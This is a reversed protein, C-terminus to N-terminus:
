TLKIKEKVQRLAFWAHMALTTPLGYHRRMVIFREHLSAHHNKNTMGGDLYNAVVAPVRRMALHQEEAQRMIRICWDVDASYRYGLDYPTARALDTRAYFAQHCVLMGKRFSKWSLNDPPSLRRHRLFRGETDVIDTDGYLVAPLAEEEGVTAAVTDLTDDSPFTDGANLFLVYDGTARAVARNMADYLGNDPESIISVEHSKEQKHHEYQYAKALELTTDTSAGDQIIHEVYAYTQRGVSDLTRQLTEAANYTCTIITFRIM